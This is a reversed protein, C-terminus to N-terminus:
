SQRPRNMAQDYLTDETGEKLAHPGPVDDPNVIPWLEGDSERRANMARSPADNEMHVIRMQDFPPFLQHALNSHISQDEYTLKQQL